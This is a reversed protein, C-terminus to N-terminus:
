AKSSPPQPETAHSRLMASQAGATHVVGRGGELISGVVEHGRMIVSHLMSAAGRGRVFRM